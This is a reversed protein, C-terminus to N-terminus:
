WKRNKRECLVKGSLELVQELLVALEENERADSERALEIIRRYIIFDSVSDRSLDYGAEALLGNAAEEDCRLVAIISVVRKLSIQKKSKLLKCFYSFDTSLKESLDFLNYNKSYNNEKNIKKLEKLVLDGFITYNAFKKGM